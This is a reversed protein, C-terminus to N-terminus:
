IPINDNLENITWGEWIAKEYQKSRLKDNLMVIGIIRKEKLYVERYIDSGQEVIFEINTINHPKNQSFIYTGLVDSKLRFSKPQYCIQEGIMNKGASYGQAEAAHWLFSNTNDPLIAVDGAAYIDPFTTQFFNNVIIGNNIEIGSNIAVDCNPISGICLVLGDVDRTNNKNTYNIKNKNFRLNNTVEKDIIIDIGNQKLQIELKKSVTKSIHHDMLHTSNHVITVKKGMKILQDAMELGEIGGGIVLYTSANKTHAILEESDKTTYIHFIRNKPITSLLLTRPKKGTAILLKDFTFTLSETNITNSKANINKVFGYLITINNSKYFNTPLLAFEDKEFGINMLKNIKTRKYPLRDENSLLLISSDKDIERISKIATIGCIGAGIIIHNFHNKM